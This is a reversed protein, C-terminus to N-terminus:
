LVFFIKELCLPKHSDIDSWYGKMVYGFIIHSKQLAMIDHVVSCHKVICLNVEKM